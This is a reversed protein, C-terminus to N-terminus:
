APDFSVPREWLALVICGETSTVIHSTGPPNIVLAGAPYRGREDEQSGALVFIHELAVHRHRALRAGPQYRLFAASAGDPGGDYLRHIEIGPRLATWAFREPHSVVERLQVVLRENV